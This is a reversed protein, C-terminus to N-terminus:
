AFSVAPVIHIRCDGRQFPDACHHDIRATFTGAAMVRAIEVVREVFAERAEDDLPPQARETFPRSGAAKPHVFLLRAGGTRVAEGAHESGEVAADFAGMMIGLQYAQLQAHLSTEPGTPPKTGTKLDVVSVELGADTSRGELRDAIGRLEARGLSISFSEERGLLRRDSAEFERLYEALGIAMKGATRRMRESEWEAAFPLKRWESMISAVLADVDHGPVTEFAHHVLTGLSMEVSGAGGGLAGVAWNLPCTEARKMQSPSVPVRVEPEDLPYFPGETSPPLVGYWEDPHAGPVGASALEALSRRAELDEPDAVVRRRMEATAGRLTLRASPLDRAAHARGFGFFPGPDHEDDDISVVLLERRARSCAQAFLRLEDHITDRRSPDSAGGGRLWRELAVAGLLSGRSRTNPWAGDQVGIVVVLDFERGVAGQPTTVTVADREARRALSDEPVASELLDSLLSGIPQESAQEEHRQLAYFLEMVADLARSAEDAHHGRGRLAERQWEEALRAGDWLAWLAERPTGGAEAAATGAAALRGLRRLARGARSDI